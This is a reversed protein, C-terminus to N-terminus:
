QYQNSLDNLTGQLVTENKNFTHILPFDDSFGNVYGDSEYKIFNSVVKVNSYLVQEHNLVATITDGLGASFVLVPINSDNTLKLLDHTGDRLSNGHQKAIDDIEKSDFKFGRNFNFPFLVM